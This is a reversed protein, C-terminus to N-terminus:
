NVASRLCPDSTRIREPAGTKEFTKRNSRGRLPDIKGFSSELPRKLACGAQLDYPGHKSPQGVGGLIQEESFRSRKM